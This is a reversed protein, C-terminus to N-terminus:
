EDLTRLLKFIVNVPGPPLNLLVPQSNAISAKAVKVAIPVVYQTPQPQTGQVLSVGPPVTMKLDFAVDSGQEVYKGDYLAGMADAGTVIGRRLVLLGTGWGVAGRFTMVYIGDMEKGQRRAGRNCLM